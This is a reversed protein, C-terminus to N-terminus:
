FRLIRRALIGSYHRMCELQDILLNQDVPDMAKWISSGIFGSLREVKSKLEAHEVAVRQQHPQLDKFEPPTSPILKDLALMLASAKTVANTLEVSAGCEEIALCVNYAQEILPHRDIQTM